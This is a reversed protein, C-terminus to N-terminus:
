IDTKNIMNLKQIKLEIILIKVECTKKFSKIFISNIILDYNTM